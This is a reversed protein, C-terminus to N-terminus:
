DHNGCHHQDCGFAPQGVDNLLRNPNRRFFHRDHVRIARQGTREEQVRQNKRQPAGHIGLDDLAHIGGPGLSIQPATDDHHDGVVDEDHQADHQDPQDPHHAEVFQFGYLGVLNQTQQEALLGLTQVPDDHQDKDAGRRSDHRGRGTDQEGERRNHGVVEVPM